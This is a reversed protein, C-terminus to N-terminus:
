PGLESLEAPREASCGDGIWVSIVLEESLCEFGCEIRRSVTLTGRTGPVQQSAEPKSPSQRMKKGDEINETLRD